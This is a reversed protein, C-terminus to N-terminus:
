QEKKADCDTCYTHAIERLSIDRGWATIAVNSPSTVKGCIATGADCTLHLVKPDKADQEINM